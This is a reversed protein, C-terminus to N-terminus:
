TRPRPMTSSSGDTTAIRRSPPGVGFFGDLGDALFGLFHEALRRAANRHNARHFVAHDGVEGDGLLHELLEDLLHMVGLQEARARADDDAHGTARGLNFAAGDAFRGDAGTGALNVQDLLRHSGRDAGAQRNGVGVPEITTSIPPPV